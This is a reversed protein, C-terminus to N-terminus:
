ARRRRREVLLEVGDLFTDLGFRFTADPDTTQTSALDRFGGAAVARFLAPYQEPTAATRIVDFFHGAADEFPRGTRAARAFDAMVQADYAVQGFLHILTISKEDQTLPTDELTALGADLWAIQSPTGMREMTSIAVLWPHRRMHERQQLCWDALRERWPRTPDDAYDVPTWARDHMFLLLEDKNAVYRYLSMTTFGLRQAVRAMSLAELGGEDALAIAADVIRDLSLGLRPARAPGTLSWLRALGSTPEPGPPAGTPDAEDM